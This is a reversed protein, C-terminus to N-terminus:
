LMKRLNDYYWEVSKNRPLKLKQFTELTIVSDPLKWPAILQNVVLDAAINFLKNDFDKAKM